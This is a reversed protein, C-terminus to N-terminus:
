KEEQKTEDEWGRIAGSRLMKPLDHAKTIVKRSYRMAEKDDILDQPTLMIGDSRVLVCDYDFSFFSLDHTAFSDAGKALHRKADFWSLETGDAYDFHVEIM